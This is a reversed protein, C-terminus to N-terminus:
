AAAGGARSAHADGSPFRTGLAQVMSATRVPAMGAAAGVIEFRSQLNLIRLAQNSPKETRM